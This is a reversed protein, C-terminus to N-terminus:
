WGLEKIQTIYKALNNRFTVRVIIMYGSASTSKAGCIWPYDNGSADGNRCGDGDDAMFTANNFGVGLDLWGTQTPLKIEVNIDGTGVPDIDGNGSLNGFELSGNSHAVGNDYFARLYVQDGPSFGSYDRGVQAPLYGTTFDITPYYLGGNFVQAEGDLLAASSTWQGTILAPVSDYNDPWASGDNDPLRRNEDDFYENVADSTIGYTDLLLNNSDSEDSVNSRGPKRCTVTVQYDISRKSAISATVTYATSGGLEM